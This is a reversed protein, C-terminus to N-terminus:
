RDVAAPIRRLVLLAIDDEPAEAGVLDAMAKACVTEAPDTSVSQRLRELGVDLPVGRREILGDTYACLVAGPTLAVTTTSRDRVLGTGIPLDPPINLIETSPGPRALVPPPHGASSM